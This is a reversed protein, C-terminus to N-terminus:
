PRNRHTRWLSVQHGAHRTTRGDIASSRNKTNQAVHPTFGLARTKAVFDKTDYGKDGCVTRRQRSKRLRALMAVATDREAFGTAATLDMDLILAHCHEMLLHGMFCLKAATANSKRAM